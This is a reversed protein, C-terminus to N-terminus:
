ITVQLTQNDIANQNYATATVNFNGTTSYNHYVFIIMDEAPQLNALYQSFIMSQGNHLSWNINSVNSTGNNLIKFRFIRETTNSYVISLNNLDITNNFSLTINMGFNTTANLLITFPSFGTKTVTLTNQIIFEGSSNYLQSFPIIRAYGQTNTTKTEYIGTEIRSVDVTASQVPLTNSFVNLDGYWYRHILGNGNSNITPVSVNTINAFENQDASFDPLINSDTASLNNYDLTLTSNAEITSSNITIIPASLNLTIQPSPTVGKRISKLNSNQIDITDQLASIKLLPDNASNIGNYTFVDMISKQINQTTANTSIVSFLRRDGGGTNTATANMIIISQNISINRSTTSINEQISFTGVGSTYFKGSINSHDIIIADSARWDSKHNGDQNSITSQRLSINTANWLLNIEYAYLKTSELLITTTQAPLNIYTSNLTSNILSINGNSNITLIDNGFTLGQITTNTLNIGNTLIINEIYPSIMTLTIPTNKVNLSNGTISRMGKLLTTDLVVDNTTQIDLYDASLHGSTFIFPSNGLSFLVYTSNMTTNELANISATEIDILSNVNSHTTSLELEAGTELIDSGIRIIADGNGVFTNARVKWHTDFLKVTSANLHIISFTQRYGTGYSSATMNLTINTQNMIVTPSTLTFNANLSFIGQSDTSYVASANFHQLTISTNANWDFIGDGFIARIYSDTIRIRSSNWYMKTVYSDIASSTVTIDQSDAFLTLYGPNLSANLFSINGHASVIVENTGNLITNTLYLGEALNVTNQSTVPSLTLLTNNATFAKGAVNRIGNIFSGPLILIDGYTNMDVSPADAYSNNFIFSTNASISIVLSSNLSMNLLPSIGKTVLTVNGTNYYSPTQANFINNELVADETQLNIVSTYFYGALTYSRFFSNSIGLSSSNVNIRSFAQQYGYGTFYLSTNLDVRTNNLTITPANLTFNGYAIFSDFSFTRINNSINSNKLSISNQANWNNDQIWGDSVLNSGNITLNNVFWKTVLHPASIFTRDLLVNSANINISADGSTLRFNRFFTDNRVTIRTGGSIGTMNVNYMNMGAYLNIDTESALILSTDNAIFRQANLYRLGDFFGNHIIKFDYPTLIDIKNGAASSGDFIVPSANINIQVIGTSNIRMNQWANTTNASISINGFPLTITKARLDSSITNMNNTAIISIYPVRAGTISAAQSDLTSYALTINTAELHIDSFMNISCYIYCLSNGAMSLTSRTVEITDAKITLNEEYNLTGQAYTSFNSLLASEDIIVKPAIIKYYDNGWITTLTSGEIVVNGTTNIGWNIHEITSESIQVGLPDTIHLNIPAYSKVHSNFLSIGSINFISDSGLVLNSNKLILKKANITIPLNNSFDVNVITVIDNTSLNLVVNPAYVNEITINGITNTTINFNNTSIIDVNSLLLNNSKLDGRNSNIISRGVLEAHPSDLYLSDTTVIDTGNIIITNPSLSSFIVDESELFTLILMIEEDTAFCSIGNINTLATRTWILESDRCLVNYKPTPKINDTYVKTLNIHSANFFVNADVGLTSNFHIISDTVSLNTGNSFILNGNQEFELNNWFVNGNLSYSPNRTLTIQYSDTANWDNDSSDRFKVFYNGLQTPLVLYSVNVNTASSSQALQNENNDYLTLEGTITSPISTVMVTYNGPKNAKIIYYDKDGNMDDKSSGNWATLYGDFTQAVPLSKAERFNDDYENSYPTTWPIVTSTISWGLTANAAPTYTVQFTYTGLMGNDLYFRATGPPATKSALLGGQPDYINLTANQGSIDWSLDWQGPRTITANVFPSAQVFPALSGSFSHVLNSNNGTTFTNDTSSINNGAEDTSKIRYHYLTNTSLGTLAVSQHQRFEEAGIITGYSATTGYEVHATANETTDINITVSVPTIFNASINSQTPAVSDFVFTTNGPQSPNGFYDLARVYVTHKGQTTNIINFRTTQGLSIYSANTTNDLQYQYEAIGTEQDKAELWFISINKGVKKPSAWVTPSFPPIPDYFNDLILSFNQASTLNTANVIITWIGVSNNGKFVQEVNNLHDEKNQTAAFSPNNPDLTWPFVRVSNNDYVVLDLDNILKKDSGGPNGPLDDWVLTVKLKDVGNSIRTYYTKNEGTTTLTNEILAKNRIQEIASLANVLGYGHKYDPGDTADYGNGSIDLDSATHILVGKITAPYPNYSYNLKFQQLILAAIGSVVPTAQSTGCEGGYTDNPITSWITRSPDNDDRGINDNDRECGPAVVDPKIRGDLTPGWASFQTMSNDNSNTAGVSIINKAAAPSATSNYGNRDPIGCYYDNRDNGVAFIISMPTPISIGSVMEDLQKELADYNGINMCLSDNVLLGWSNQSITAGFTLADVHDSLYNTTNYSLVQISPAIGQYVGSSLSGSGGLTGAVHTAHTSPFPYSDRVNVRGLLDGHTSDIMSSGQDLAEWMGVTINSGNINPFISLAEDASTATIIGDNRSVIPSLPRYIYSISNEDLLTKFSSTKVEAQYLGLGIDEIIIGNQSISNICAQLNARNCEILLRAHPANYKIFVQSEVYKKSESNWYEIKKENQAFVLPLFLIILLLLIFYEKNKCCVSINLGGEHM